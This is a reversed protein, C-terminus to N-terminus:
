FGVPPAAFFYAGWWCWWRVTARFRACGPSRIACGTWPRRAASPFVWWMSGTGAWGRRPTSASAPWAVWCTGAKAASFEAVMSLGFMHQESDPQTLLVRRGHRPHQVENGFDPSLQRLLRQLRGLSVTVTAFDVRDQEWLVGLERAAPTLLELFLTSVAVGRARLQRVLAHIREDSDDVLAHVMAQVEEASPPDADGTEADRHQRVLRPIVESQITRTLRTVRLKAASLSLDV